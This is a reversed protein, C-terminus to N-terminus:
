RVLPLEVVLQIQATTGGGAGSRLTLIYDTDAKGQFPLAAGTQPAVLTTGTATSVTAFSAAEVFCISAASPDGFPQLQLRMAILNTVDASQFMIGRIVHDDPFSFTESTSTNAAAVTIGVLVADLSTEPELVAVPRIQQLFEAASGGMPRLWTAVEDFVRGNQVILPTSPVLAM